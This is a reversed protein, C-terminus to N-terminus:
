DPNSKNIELDVDVIGLRDNKRVNNLVIELVNGMKDEFVVNAGIYVLQKLATSRKPQRLISQARRILKAEEDNINLSIKRGTPTEDKKRFKEEQILPV